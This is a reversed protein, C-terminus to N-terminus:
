VVFLKGNVFLTNFSPRKWTNKDVLSADITQDFNKFPFPNWLSSDAFSSFCHFFFFISASTVPYIEGHAPFLINNREHM